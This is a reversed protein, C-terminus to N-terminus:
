MGGRYGLPWTQKVQTTISTPTALLTSVGSPMYQCEIPVGRTNANIM